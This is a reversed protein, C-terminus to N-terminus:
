EYAAHNFSLASSVKQPGHRQHAPVMGVRPQHQQAIPRFACSELPKCGVKSDRGLEEAHARGLVDLGPERSAATEDTGLM